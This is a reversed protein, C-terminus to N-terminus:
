HTSALPVDSDYAINKYLSRCHVVPLLEPPLFPTPPVSARTPILAPSRVLAIVTGPDLVGFMVLTTFVLLIPMGPIQINLTSLHVYMHVYTYEYM